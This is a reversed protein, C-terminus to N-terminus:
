MCIFLSSSTSELYRQPNNRGRSGEFGGILFQVLQSENQRMESLLGIAQANWRGSQQVDGAESEVDYRSQGDLVAGGEVALFVGRRLDRRTKRLEVLGRLIGDPTAVIMAVVPNAARLQEGGVREGRRKEVVLGRNAVFDGIIQHASRSRLDLRRKERLDFRDALFQLLRFVRRAAGRFEGHEQVSAADANAMESQHVVARRLFPESLKEVHIHQRSGDLVDEPLMQATQNVLLLRLRVDRERVRLRVRRGERLM